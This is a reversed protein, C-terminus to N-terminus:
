CRTAATASPAPSLRAARREAAHGAAAREHRHRREDAHPDRPEDDGPLREQSRQRSRGPRPSGPDAPVTHRESHRYGGARCIGGAALGGEHRVWRNARAVRGPCRHDARRRADPRVHDFLEPRLAGGPAAYPDSRQSGRARQPISVVQRCAACVRASRGGRPIPLARSDPGGSGGEVAALRSPGHAVRHSGGNRRHNTRGTHCRSRSDATPLLRHHHQHRARSRGEPRQHGALVEATATQRELAEQTERFLRANQIAIAAQDAFTKLLEIEKDSFPKPPIRAISLAGIGRGEWFMPADLTSYNGYYEVSKRLGEPVGPGHQVDPFHLVQRKYIAYGQISERVPRPFDSQYREMGLRVKPDDSEIPLQVLHMLGDDGVIGISAHSSEVLQQCSRMIKEFVPQADAVSSSIVKLVEATATQRELAEQTENFLRANEIAILAQDRFSEALAIQADSFAEARARAFSLLGISEGDRLMPLYLASNVGLQERINREHEPLEVKSWDPLHLPKCDVLVRSPFNAAADVPMAGLGLEGMLGAPTAAAQVTFSNGERRMVFSSDCGLLRVATTVIADFVPQVDTPSSSIVRLMDATATQRNLAEQTEKFMKANQIAIVAQDAFTKILAIEKNSFPKMPMRAVMFAGIGKDKWILPVYLQSHDGLWESNERLQPPVDPGHLVSPYHLVLRKHASYSHLTRRQPAPFFSRLYKAIKPYLPDDPFHPSPNMTQHVLGDEGILGIDVYNTRLLHRASDIIREFVPAADSVSNGIVTLVEASATQQELAEKTENFLRVNQIAIAAQNAFTGLLQLHKTEFPRAEARRAHIAGLASGKHMLPVAVIARHGYQTALRSGTPFEESASQIDAVHVTRGELIARGMVTSDDLPLLDGIQRGLEGFSAAKRVFDGERLVVDTFQAECIRAAREAVADLVPNVDTPSDSIVRLVEATATQQELAEKTENFLRANQIAIVAQDAFSKLLRSENDSFPRMDFRLASLAGVVQGGSTMAASLMSANSGLIRTAERLSDPVDPGHALDPWYSPVGTILKGPAPRPFLQRLAEAHEGSGARWHMRGDSGRASIALETGPMLRQLSACISDFVPQADAMSESVVRLVEASTTQLELAEKTENFLRVNEIAIVAQAAFTQLLEVEKPLFEGPRARTVAIAGIVRGDRLMPVGLVGRYGTQRAIDKTKYAAAPLLLADATQTVRGDRVAQATISGEGPPMPFARRAAAVGEENIGYTSAIHILSGDYRFVFGNDAGTLRAAREAIIDFVPQVDTISRGIVQLVQSTATQRELAEQTEHFLRANQLAIVAQDAFSGLQAVEDAEFPAPPTRVVILTGIGRGEWRLPVFVQSCDGFDMASVIERLPEPTDPGQLVSDYHLLRGERLAHTFADDGLPRPFFRELVERAPGNHAALTLQQQAEDLLLVTQQTGAFLASCCGLITDFVPRTDTISRSIAQLVRASATQRELAQQTEHFLRANEIAIVAQDAFTQALAIQRDDFPGSDARVIGIAGLAAGDRLLPVFLGSRWGIAAALERTRPYREVVADRDEVAVVKASLVCDGAVSDHDLPWQGVVERGAMSGDTAVAVRQLMGGKPLLLNVTRGGFLRQCAAVIADFVPQTDTVSASIVRLVEASAKQQELAERTESFLRVNELALGMSAAVTTLLRLEADGFADERDYNELAIFGVVQEGRVIPARLASRCAQDGVRLLGAAHLEKPNRYVAGQRSAILREVPGSPVPTRPAPHIRKGRAYEYLFLVRNNRADYWRIGLTDTHLVERLRDGVLDVIAQFDLSGAIGQQIRNIVALEANRQETEKLLRQMEDFNRANQLAMGMSAAVTSLLRVEAEGYANEREHNDLAITGLFRDGAFFPMQATSLSPETGPVTHLGLATMEARNNAVVPRNAMFAKIMPGDLNPRTPDIAVRVGRQYAYLYRAVGAAADWWVILVNGTGFVERLRDGVLDVIGQFSAEEAMGQQISNIVALEGARQELQQTREVVKAELGASARINALAVAAQAALMGLLDGDADHFRGFAGEIDAYLFGLPQHQAVLPAVLCSRQDVAEAGAPGHRLRALRTHRAEDLWPRIAQLLAAADEGAPLQSGAIVLEDGDALVLLVREAGSLETAEEVLFEHLEAERHLQNLRVGTDVLREFPERLQTRASLHALTRARPLKRRRGEALWARILQRHAPVKNFWSRRLGEDSLSAVGDLMVRYSTALAQRAQAQLGNAQLARTHWWWASAPTFMSGLGADGRAQLQAIAQRTAALAAAADGCEVLLSGLETLAIVHLTRDGRASSLAVAREFHQQAAATEGYASAARGLVLQVIVKFWPDDSQAAAAAATEAHRRALEHHGLQGEIVSLMSAFYASQGRLANLSEISAHRGGPNRARAYLGISGYAMALNGLTAAAREPQGAAIFAALSERLGKLRQAMDAHERYVINAAAGIGEHDGAQRALALSALGARERERAQGLQDHAYAQAWLARGQWVPDGLSEFLAASRQASRLAAANDYPRFQAESLRFLALAQLRRQRARRAAAFADDAAAAAAAWQGQRLCVAALRCLAQAQLAPSDAQAHMAQADALAQATHGLALHSEARRDLLDLQQAASLGPAALAADAQAVAQAHQGAWASGAIAALAEGIDSQPGRGRRPPKSADAPPPKPM